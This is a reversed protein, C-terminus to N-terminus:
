LKEQYQFKTHDQHFTDLNIWGMSIAKVVAETRAAVNIKRFIRSVYKAVTGESVFLKQSIESNSLGHAMLLLVQLERNSLIQSSKSNCIISVPHSKNKQFLTLEKVLYEAAQPHYYTNGSMVVQIAEMLLKTSVSKPLFGDMGVQCASLVNEKTIANTLAIKKTGFMSKDIDILFQIGDMYYTSLDILLLNPKFANIEHLSNPSSTFNEVEFTTTQSLTLIRRIGKAFSIHDDIIAIRLSNEM